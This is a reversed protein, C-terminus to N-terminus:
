IHIVTFVAFFTVGVTLMWMIMIMIFIFLGLEKHILTAPLVYYTLLGFFVLFSGVLIERRSLGLDQLRQKTATLGEGEGNRRTADLSERLNKGLAEQTPGIISVVPVILGFLLIAIFIVRAPIGYDGANKLAIFMVEQFGENIIFAIVLGLLM